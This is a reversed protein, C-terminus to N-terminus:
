NVLSIGFFSCPNLGAPSNQNRKASNKKLHKDTLHLFTKVVNSSSQLISIPCLFAVYPFQRQMEPCIEILINATNSNARIISLIVSQVELNSELRSERIIAQNSLIVVTDERLLSAVTFQSHQQNRM